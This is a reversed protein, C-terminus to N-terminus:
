ISIYNCGNHRTYNLEKQVGSLRRWPHNSTLNGASLLGFMSLPLYNAESV